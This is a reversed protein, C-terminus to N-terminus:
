SKPKTKPTTSKKKTTTKKQPEAKKQQVVVKPPHLERETFTLIGIHDKGKVQINLVKPNDGPEFTVVVQVFDTTTYTKPPLAVYALKVVQDRESRMAREILQGDGESAKYEKPYMKAFRDALANLDTNTLTCRSSFPLSGLNQKNQLASKCKRAINLYQPANKKAGVNTEQLVLKQGFSQCFIFLASTLLLPKLKNM